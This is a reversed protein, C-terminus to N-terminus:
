AARASVRQRGAAVLRRWLQAVFGPADAELVLRLDRVLAEATARGDAGASAAARVRELVFDRLTPDDEGLLDAVAAQVWAGLAGGLELLRAERVAPWLAEM